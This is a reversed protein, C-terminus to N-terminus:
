PQRPPLLEARDILVQAAALAGERTSAVVRLELVPKGPEDLMGDFDATWVQADPLQLLNNVVAIV